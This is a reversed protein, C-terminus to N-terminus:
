WVQCLSSSLCLHLPSSVGGGSKPAPEASFTESALAEIDYQAVQRLEEGSQQHSAYPIAGTGRNAVVGSTILVNIQHRSWSFDTLSDTNM